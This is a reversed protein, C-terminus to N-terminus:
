GVTVAASYTELLGCMGRRGQESPGDFAYVGGGALYGPDGRELADLEAGTATAAALAGARWRSRWQGIKPAVLAAAAAHFDALAAPGARGVADRLAHFGVVALDRRRYAAALDSGPAGGGPLNVAAAYGAPDALIEPPFTLVADGAEPLGSNQMLVVIQLGGGNVLRHITGPPFWVVVGPRLRTETYGDGALTQVLGQGGTVVYGETCCLHMHPTGGVLGDPALTDYVTLRSVGIGGPLPPVPATDSM